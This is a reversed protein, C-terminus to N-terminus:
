LSVWDGDFYSYKNRINENLKFNENNKDPVIIGGFLNKGKKNESAIYKSLAHAKLETDRIKVISGKKTDFIGIRDDTYKM